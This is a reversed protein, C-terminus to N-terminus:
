ATFIMSARRRSLQNNHVDPRCAWPQRPRLRESRRRCNQCIYIRTEGRKLLFLRKFMLQEMQLTLMKIQIDRQLSHLTLGVALRDINDQVRGLAHDGAETGLGGKGAPEPGDAELLM